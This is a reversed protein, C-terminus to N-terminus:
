NCTTAWEFSIQHINQITKM